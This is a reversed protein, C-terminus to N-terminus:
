FRPLMRLTVLFFYLSKKLQKEFVRGGGRSANKVHYCRGKKGFDVAEFCM